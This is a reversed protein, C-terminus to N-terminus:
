DAQFRIGTVFWGFADSDSVTMIAAGGEYSFACDFHPDPTDFENCGQFAWGPGNARTRFLKQVTRAGAVKRARVRDHNRWSRYFEKAAAQPTARNAPVKASAVHPAALLLSGCLLIVTLLRYRRMRAVTCTPM